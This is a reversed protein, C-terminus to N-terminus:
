FHSNYPVFLAVIDTTLPHGKLRLICCLNGERVFCYILLEQKGRATAIVFDVKM